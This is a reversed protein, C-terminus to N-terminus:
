VSVVQPEDSLYVLRGTVEAFGMDRYLNLFYVLSDLPNKGTEEPENLQSQYQVLVVQGNALHVVRHPAGHLRKRSLISRDTDIRLTADFLSTLEPHTVIRTLRARLDASELQRILGESVLRRLTKDICGPGRILSLAASLKRDRERTRAFTAVDFVRDAQRRLNLEQKRHGSIINDVVIEEDAKDVPRHTHADACLSLEYCSRGEEWGCGCNKATESDRLFSHLWYSVDKQSGPKKFDVAREALVYLRDTPRTFAVYLLNMNELFTRTVEERYQARVGDTTKDLKSSTNAPASLLRTLEGTDATHTLRDTDLDSLDLWITGKPMPTVDWNAFPIIVVPFELGKAKHITQISVANSANGEVSIKQRVSDWYVVFDALHGSRKQNFTLVEDLFRFLFPNHEAQEFLGFQATLREALEYPNLQGLAYPDLPFGETTLYAYVADAGTEAVRRLEGTLDDDPFVGRVVRQFLYLLEYRLLKNDPRLLLRMLTVLWKVPDSFELSLSDASTLPIRRANLANAIVRAQGRKRCLIAVDGYQYGDALAKQLLAVTKDVMVAMLDHGTEDDKALFDIQVHGAEKAGPSVQQHFRQQADFVDAVRAHDSEYCRATHEFFQNNFRVIPAASRWNTDLIEGTLHGTLMGIRDATFTDAGHARQLGALDNGHLAVIQDMDGGRFRYIAQKGDGVALNLHQAGLANEILPLLNAFQLRSTDQFEDILIHNFKEGLKEYLFPVPESAVIGLIKKNFESIHVRGDKRLLEDFEIRMQKLLALKQLHPLLCDFLAVQQGRETHIANIQRICGTLEDTLSDIIGQVPM